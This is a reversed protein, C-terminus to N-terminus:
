SRTVTAEGGEELVKRVHPLSGPELVKKTLCHPFNVQTRDGALISDIDSISIVACLLGVPLLVCITARFGAVMASTAASEPTEMFVTDRTKFGAGPPYM